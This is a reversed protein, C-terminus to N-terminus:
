RNAQTNSYLTYATELREKLEWVCKRTPIPEIASPMEFVIDLPIATERGLMLMKPSMGTTEHETARYAMM